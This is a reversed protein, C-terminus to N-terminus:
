RKFGSRLSGSAAELQTDLEGGEVASKLLELTPVLDAATSVEVAYRGKALELLRAGYRINICLKGNDGTFWWAKIRKAVEVAKKNGEADKVNKLRKTSFTGGAQEARALEIQEWLRRGLKNRRQQVPAISQPKKAATLKLGALATM